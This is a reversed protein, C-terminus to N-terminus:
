LLVVWKTVAFGHGVLFNVFGSTLDLGGRQNPDTGDQSLRNLREGSPRGIKGARTTAFYSQHPKRPGKPDPRRHATPTQSLSSPRQTTLGDIVTM